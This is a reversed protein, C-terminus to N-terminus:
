TIDSTTGLASYEFGNIENEVWINYIYSCGLKFDHKDKQTEGSKLLRKYNSLLSKHQLAYVHFGM